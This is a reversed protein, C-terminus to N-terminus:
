YNSRSSEESNEDEDGKDSASDDYKKATSERSSTSVDDDFKREANPPPLSNVISAIQKNNLLICVHGRARGDDDGALEDDEDQESNNWGSRDCYKIDFAIYMSELLVSIDRAGRDHKSNVKTFCCPAVINEVNICSFVGSKNHRGRHDRVNTAKYTYLPHPFNTNQINCMSMDAVILLFTLDNDGGATHLQLSLIALVHVFDHEGLDCFDYRSSYRDSQNYATAEGRYKNTALINFKKLGSSAPPFVTLGHELQLEVDTDGSFCTLTM